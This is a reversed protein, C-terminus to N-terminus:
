YVLYRTVVPSSTTGSVYCEMAKNTYGDADVYYKLFWTSDDSAYEAIRGVISHMKFSSYNQQGYLECASMASEISLVRSLNEERTAQAENLEVVSKYEVYLTATNYLISQKTIVYPMEDYSASEFDSLMTQQLQEETFGANNPRDFVFKVTYGSAILESYAVKADSGIYNKENNTVSNSNTENNTASNSNTEQSTVDEVNTSYEEPKYTTIFAITMLSSIILGIIAMVFTAKAKGDKIGLKRPGAINVLAVIPAIVGFIPFLCFLLGVISSIFSTKLKDNLKGIEKRDDEPVEDMLKRLEKKKQTLENDEKLEKMEKVLQKRRLEIGKKNKSYDTVANM